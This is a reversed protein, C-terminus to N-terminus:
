SSAPGWIIMPTPTTNANASVQGSLLSKLDPEFASRRCSLRVHGTNGAHIDRGVLAHEDRQLVDM